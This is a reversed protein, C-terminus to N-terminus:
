DQGVARAGPQRGHGARLARLLPPGVPGAGRRGSPLRRPLRWLPRGARSGRVGVRHNRRGAAGDQLGAAGGPAAGRGAGGVGRAAPRRGVHPPVAPHRHIRCLVARLHHVHWAHFSPRVTPSHSTLSRTRWRASGRAPGAAPPSSAHKGTHWPTKSSRGWGGLAGGPHVAFAHVPAGQERMRRALELAFLANSLKAQGYAPWASYSRAEWNLDDLPLGKAFNHGFSTLAVVRGRAAAVKPLLLTALRHHGVHCVGWQAEFGQKTLQKTPLGMIGAAPLPPAAPGPGCPARTLFGYSAWRTRVHAHAFLPPPLLQRLRARGALCCGCRCCACRPLPLLAGANLVLYDIAPLGAVAPHAAFAAVSHLDDLSLPAVTIRGPAPAGPALAVQLGAAISDAVRQGAEASRSALVVNCGAGALVRVTEAGLGAGLPRCQLSCHAAGRIVPQCAPSTYFLSGQAAGAPPAPAGSNGGTVM